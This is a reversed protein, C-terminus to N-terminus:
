EWAEPCSVEVACHKYSPQRSSPDFSPQTLLNTEPWHMSLFVQGEAITPTVCARVKVAGRASRVVVRDGSAVGIRVGDAPAIEVYPEGPSLARLLPSKATRTQTHWQAASGRGTLLM